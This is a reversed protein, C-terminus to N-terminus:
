WPNELDSPQYDHRREVFYSPYSNKLMMFDKRFLKALLAIPLLIVLFLIGLIIRSMVYGLVKALWFWAKHIWGTLKDSLIGVIGVALAVQWLISISFVSYLVICGVMIAIITEKERAIKM